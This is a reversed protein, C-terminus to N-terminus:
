KLVNNAFSLLSQADVRSSYAEIFVKGVIVGKPDVVFAGPHGIGYADEGLTYKENLIGLTKVTAAANDSLIPYTISFKDKFPKQGDPTDYTLGVVNIGAQKFAPLNDNLQAMQKMCFPCWVLSRSVVFVTGKQGAFNALSNVVAGDYIANISPFPEGVKIGPNFDDTDSAVYMDSTVADKALEIFQAKFIFGLGILVVVAVGFGILIKKMQKDRLFQYILRANLQKSGL